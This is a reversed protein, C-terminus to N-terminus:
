IHMMSYLNLESVTRSIGPWVMWHEGSSTIKYVFYGIM